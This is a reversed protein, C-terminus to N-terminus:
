SSFQPKTKETILICQCLQIVFTYCHLMQLYFWFLTVDTFLLTVIYCRYFLTYFHLMLFCAQLWTVDTFLVTVIHGSFLLTIIYYRYVIIYCHLMMARRVTKVSIASIVVPVPASTVCTSRVAREAMKVPTPPVCMMVQVSFHIVSM